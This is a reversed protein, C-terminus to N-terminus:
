MTPLHHRFRDHPQRKESVTPGALPASGGTPYFKRSIRNDIVQYNDGAGKQRCYVLEAVSEADVALALVGRMSSAALAAGSLLACPLEQQHRGV